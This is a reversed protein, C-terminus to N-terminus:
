EGGRKVGNSHARWLDPFQQCVERLADEYSCNNEQAFGRVEGMLIVTAADKPQARHESAAESYAEWLYSERKAVESLAERMSCKREKAYIRGQAMLELALRERRSKSM